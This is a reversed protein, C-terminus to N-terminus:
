NNKLTIVVVGNEGEEGYQELAANGKLVSITEIEDPDLDKMKRVKKVEDGQIIVYLPDMSSDAKGKIKLEVKPDILQVEDQNNIDALLQQQDESLQNKVSLFVALRKKKIQAELAMVKEMQRMAAESDVKAESLLESLAVNAEDLDWKLENFESMNDNYMIKIFDLQQESLGIKSRYKMVREASYNTMEKQGSQALLSSTGLVLLLTILTKM